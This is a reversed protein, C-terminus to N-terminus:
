AAHNGEGILSISRRLFRIVRALSFRVSILQSLDIRREINRAYDSVESIRIKLQM